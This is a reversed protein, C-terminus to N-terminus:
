SFFFLKKELLLRCVLHRLSQLESTHEESRPRHPPWPALPRLVEGSRPIHSLGSSIPLADHLSLTYIETTATDHFFFYNKKLCFVAYSIGLHSSNLRTSKRDLDTRLGLRSRGFYKEPDLSTPYVVQSRFLTTYPFLTSRPPRPIM